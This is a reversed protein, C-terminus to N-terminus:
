TPRGGVEPENTERSDPLAHGGFVELGGATTPMRYGDLTCHEWLSDWRDDFRLASRYQVGEFGELSAVACRVVQARRGATQDAITIQLFVRSGPRLPRTGIILAGGASLNQVAVLHGPRLLARVSAITPHGFRSHTRRETLPQAM